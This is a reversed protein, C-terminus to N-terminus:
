IVEQVSKSLKSGFYALGHCPVYLKTAAFSIPDEGSCVVVRPINPWRELLDKTKEIKVATSNEALNSIILMSPEIDKRLIANDFGGFVAEWHIDARHQMKMKHHYALFAAFYKARSDDPNGAVIYIMARTPDAIFKELSERQIDAEVIKNELRQSEIVFASPEWYFDGQRWVSGHVVGSLLKKDAVRIRLKKRNSTSSDQM